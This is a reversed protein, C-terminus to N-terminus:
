GLLAARMSLSGGDFGSLPFNVKDNVNAAGLAYVMPLFHDLTPHSMRGDDTTALKAMGMGDHNTFASEVDRDFRAAWDPTSTDGTAFSHMAFRLNHTANGSALVLVGEDRLPALNRALVLHQEPALNRDLSLQVVPVDANPLLHHLVTWTGHDLGWDGRLSARNEGLLKVVRNALAVDGPAPYQMAFLADPFGGFDHITQPHENGTLFTGPVFWHASVCLVTRPRPILKAMERFGRSWANDEIANMPSGHGVFLVPM